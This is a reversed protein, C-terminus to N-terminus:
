DEVHGNANTPTEDGTTAPVNSETPLEGDLEAASSSLGGGRLGGTPTTSWIEADLSGRVASSTMAALSRSSCPVAPVLQHQSMMEGYKSKGKKIDLLTM